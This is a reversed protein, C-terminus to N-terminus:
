LELPFEDLTTVGDKGVLYDHELRIGGQLCEGYLGPEVALTEGEQVAHDSGPTLWPFEWGNMGFGHGAHHWFSGACPQFKELHARLAHYVERGVAGPRIVKAAVDHAQRAMEWAELQITSPRGVAFTRTLDCHYGNYFPFIDLIYLDGPAVRRATPPGGGRIARTGCAFDGRLDVSTQAHTVLADHFMSYVQFETMGPEIRGRVAAYGAEVLRVTDRISEIEDPDKIRRLEDVIPTINATKAGCIQAAAASVFDYELGITGPRAVERLFAVAEETMTTRNFPREITYGTYVRVEDAAAQKPEQNTIFTSRGSTNLAFLQPQAHDTLVGSFYYITRPNALVALDLREREMERLLRQQRGRCAEIRLM